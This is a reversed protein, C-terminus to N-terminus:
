SRRTVHSKVLTWDDGDREFRLERQLADVGMEAIPANRLWTVVVTAGSDNLSVHDVKILIGNGRIRCPPRDPTTCELVDGDGADVFTQPLSSRLLDHNVHQTFGASLQVAVHKLDISWTKSEARFPTSDAVVNFLARAFRVVQGQGPEQASVPLQPAASLSLALLILTKTVKM